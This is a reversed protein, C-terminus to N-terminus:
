SVQSGGDTKSGGPIKDGAWKSVGNHEGRSKESHGFVKSLASFIGHLKASTSTREACKSLVQALSSYM